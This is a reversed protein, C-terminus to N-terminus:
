RSRWRSAGGNSERIREMSLAAECNVVLVDAVRNCLRGLRRHWPTMWYGLNNRTRVIRPVGALWAAPVGFYTSDPFYAQLVDIRERQLFRAFRWARVLTGPHRLSAVDLRLVPCDEPELARSEDSEGHLLCLYPQVRRRDLRQILALLQTETGATTLRDIL